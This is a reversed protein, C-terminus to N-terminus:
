RYRVASEEFALRGADSESDLFALAGALDASPPFSVAVLNSGEMKETVGGFSRMRPVIMPESSKERAFIRVTTNKSPRLMNSFRLVGDKLEAAIEDGMSIDRAYFPVNDVQFVGAAKPVSWLSEEAVPPYGDEQQEVRFFVKVPADM